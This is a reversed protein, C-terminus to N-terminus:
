RRDHKACRRGVHNKEVFVVAASGEEDDFLDLRQESLLLAMM